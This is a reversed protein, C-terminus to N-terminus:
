LGVLGRVSSVLLGLSALALMILTTWIGAVAWTMGTLGLIVFIAVPIVGFLISSVEQKGYFMNRIGFLILSLMALGTLVLAAIIGIAEVSM